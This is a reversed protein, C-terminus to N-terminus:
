AHRGGFQAKTLIVVDQGERFQLSDVGFSAVDGQTGVHRREIADLGAWAPSAKVQGVAVEITRLGFAVVGTDREEFAFTGLDALARVFDRRSVVGAEGLEGVGAGLNGFFEGCERSRLDSIHARDM